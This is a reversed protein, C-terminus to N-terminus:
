KKDMMSDNLNLFDFDFSNSVPQNQHIQQPQHFVPQVHQQILYGNNDTTIVSGNMMMNPNIQQHLQQQQIHQHQQHQLDNFNNSTGNSLLIAITNNNDTPNHQIIGVNNVVNNMNSTNTNSIVLNSM